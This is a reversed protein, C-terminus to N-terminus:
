KAVEQLAFHKCLGSSGLEPLVHLLLKPVVVDCEAAEAYSYSPFGQHKTGWFLKSWGWNLFVFFKPFM